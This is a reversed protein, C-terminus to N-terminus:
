YIIVFILPVISMQLLSVGKGHKNRVCYFFQWAWIGCKVYGVCLPVNHFQWGYIDSKVGCVSLAIVNFNGRAYAAFM